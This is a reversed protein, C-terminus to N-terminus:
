QQVCLENRHLGVERHGQGRHHFVIQHLMHLLGECDVGGDLAKPDSLFTRTKSLFDCKGDMLIVDFQDSICHPGIVVICVQEVAQASWDGSYV